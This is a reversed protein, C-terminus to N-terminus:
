NLNIIFKGVFSRHMCTAMDLSINVFKGKLQSKVYSRQSVASAVVAARVNSENLTEKPCNSSQQAMHLIKVMPKDSFLGFPRGFETVLDVCCSMLVSHVIEVGFIGDIKPQKGEVGAEAVEEAKRKQVKKMELEKEGDM